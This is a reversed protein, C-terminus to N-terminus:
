TRDERSYGRRHTKFMKIKTSLCSRKKMTVIVNVEKSDGAGLTLM